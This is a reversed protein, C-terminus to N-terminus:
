LIQGLFVSYPLNHCILDGSHSPLSNLRKKPVVWQVCICWHMNDLGCHFQYLFFIFGDRSWTAQKSLQYFSINSEIFYFFDSWLVPDFSFKCKNHSIFNKKYFWRLFLKSDVKLKCFFVNRLFTNKTLM